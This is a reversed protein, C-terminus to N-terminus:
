QNAEPAYRYCNPQINSILLMNFEFDDFVLRIKLLKGTLLILVVM